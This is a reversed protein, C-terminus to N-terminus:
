LDDSFSFANDFAGNIEEILNYKCHNAIEEGIKGTKDKITIMNSNDPSLSVHKKLENFHHLLSDYGHKNLQSILIDKKDRFGSLLINHRTSDIIQLEIKNHDNLFETIYVEDPIIKGITKKVLSPLNNDIKEKYKYFERLQQAVGPFFEGSITTYDIITNPPTLKKCVQPDGVALNEFEGVGSMLDYSLKVDKREVIVKILSALSKHQDLFQQYTNLTQPCGKSKEAGQSM